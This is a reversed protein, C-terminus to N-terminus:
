FLVSGLAFEKAELRVCLIKLLCEVKLLNDGVNTYLANNVANLLLINLLEIFVVKAIGVLCYLGEKCVKACVPTLHHGLFARIGGLCEVVCLYGAGSM